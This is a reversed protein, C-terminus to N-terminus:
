YTHFLFNNEILKNKDIFFKQKFGIGTKYKIELYPNDFSFAKAM